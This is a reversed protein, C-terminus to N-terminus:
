DNGERPNQVFREFFCYFKIEEGPIEIVIQLFPPYRWCGNAKSDMSEPALYRLAGWGMQCVRTIAGFSGVCAHVCSM